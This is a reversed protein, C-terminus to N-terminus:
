RGSEGRAKEVNNPIFEVASGAEAENTRELSMSTRRGRRRSANSRRSDLPPGLASRPGAIKCDHWVNSVWISIDNLWGRFRGGARVRAEVVVVVVVVVDDERGMMEGRPGTEL